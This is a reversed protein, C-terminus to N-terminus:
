IKIFIRRQYLWLSLLWFIIVHSFAFVFSAFYPPMYQSLINFLGQYMDVEGLPIYLYTTTWLWSLVYIFLPNTGYVLLSALRQEGKKIDILYVFVALVVCAIGTSFLVYSSTWLAKNIPMVLNWCLSVLVCAFAVQLLRVICQKKDSIGTIMRTVEFGLLMNVISPITSLLGEPDFATGKGGWMHREGLVFLDFQRVINGELTYANESGVLLLLAWYAMLIIASVLIIGNRKLLLVLISAVVYAIGIRQLVGMIRVESLPVVFPYASLLLGLFFIIVGRKLIKTVQESSFEFDTKRFSFFMASGIIFLFFPFVLDTPTSGHWDAHMLPPYVFDWSGPTNVLIMLAITLGRFADLAIYRAVYEGFENQNIQGYM